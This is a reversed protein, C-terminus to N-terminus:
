PLRWLSLDPAGAGPRSRGRQQRPSPRRPGAMGTRSGDARVSVESVGTENPGKHRLPEPSTGGEAGRAPQALDRGFSTTPQQSSVRARALVASAGGGSPPESRM